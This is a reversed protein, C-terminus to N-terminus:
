IDDYSQTQEPDCFIVEGYSGKQLYSATGGHSVLWIVPIEPPLWYQPQPAPCIGDTQIIVIDPETEENGVYQMMYELYADFDTGGRGVVERPAKDGTHLVKDFHTAADGQMFRVEMDEDANLLGMLENRSIKLADSGQSGSTDEYYFVRYTRDYSTGIAPIISADEEAMAMLTRNPQRIGRKPKPRKGTKVRSALVEWWPVVPDALYEDLWEEVGAPMLGRGGQRKFEKVAQKLVQKAQTRLQHALGQLQEPLATALDLAKEGEETLEGSAFDIWFKHSNGVKDAFDQLIKDLMEQEGDSRYVAKGRGTPINCAQMLANMYFEFSREEPLGYSSPVVMGDTDAQVYPPDDDKHLERLFARMEDWAVQFHANKRQNTNNACDMAIQYVKSALERQAPDSFQALLEIYRPIHDFVLHYMEHDLVFVGFRMSVKKVFEPDYSLTLRGQRISVCMTGLGPRAFRQLKNAVVAYFHKEALLYTFLEPITLNM